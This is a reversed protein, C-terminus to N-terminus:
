VVASAVNRSEASTLRYQRKARSGKRMLIGASHLNGLYTSITTLGVNEGYVDEYIRRVESSTFWGKPAKEDFRLFSSLREKITLDEGEYHGDVASSSLQTELFKKVDRITMQRLMELQLDGAKEMTTKTGEEDTVEVRVKLMM